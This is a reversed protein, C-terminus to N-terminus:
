RDEPVAECVWGVAHARCYAVQGSGNDLRLFGDEVRNFSYRAPPNAPANEDAAAAAATCVLLAAIAFKANSMIAIEPGPWDLVAAVVASRVRAALRNGADAATCALRM